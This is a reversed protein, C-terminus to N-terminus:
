SHLASWVLAVNVAAYIGLSAVGTIANWFLIKKEDVHRHFLERSALTCLIGLFIYALTAVHISDLLTFVDATGLESNTGRMSVCAAFLSGVLISFRPSLMSSEFGVFFNLFVLITAIYPIATLKWFVAFSEREIEMNLTLKSYESSSQSTKSPNGLNTVYHHISSEISFDKLCWGAPLMADKASSNITDASFGLNSADFSSEEIPIRLHLRDLPFSKLRWDTRFKGSINTSAWVKGEVPQEMTNVKEVRIGTPYDLMQIWNKMDPPTLAWLWFDAQFSSTKPDFDHLEVIHVGLPITKTANESTDAWGGTCFALCVALFVIFVFFNAKCSIRLSNGACRQQRNESCHGTSSSYFADNLQVSM